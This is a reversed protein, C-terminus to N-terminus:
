RGLIRDIAQGALKRAAPSSLIVTPDSLVQKVPLTGRYDFPVKLPLNLPLKSSSGFDLDGSFQFPVDGSGRRIAEEAKLLSDFSVSVPLTVHTSGNAPLSEGPKVSNDVVQVGGFALKYDAAALPITVANPNTLNVDFDVTFGQASVNRINASRFDATPKQLNLSSCGLSAVCALAVWWSKSLLGLSM